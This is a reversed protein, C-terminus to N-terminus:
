CSGSPANNNSSGSLTKDCGELGTNYSCLVEKIAQASGARFLTQGNVIFTPSSSIRLDNGEKINESFLQKGEEGTYCSEITPVDIDNKIACAKWNGEANKIDKNMCAIYDLLKARDYKMICTQRIDENVEVQGHLSDFGDATESAIFYLNFTMDPIAEAVEKLNEEALTGFPCQSMVFLDIHNEKITRNFFKVGTYNLAHLGDTETTYLKFKEWNYHEEISSDFYFFPVTEAQFKELVEKGKDSTYDIKTIKMKPFWSKLQSSILDANCEKCDFDNVIFFNVETEPPLTSCVEANILSCLFRTLSQSDRGGTYKENNIYFTPSSGVALEASRKINEKFLNKGEDSNACSEIESVNIGATEACTKWNSEVNKIDKNVCTLYNFFKEQPVKEQICTQRIDENVEPQGHLSSFGSGSESAIFKLQFDVKEKFEELVPIL